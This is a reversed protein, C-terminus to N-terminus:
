EIIHINRDQAQVNISEVAPYNSKYDIVVDYGAPVIQTGDGVKGTADGSANIEVEPNIYLYGGRVVFASGNEVNFTGKNVILSDTNALYAVFALYGATKIHGTFEGGNVIITNNGRGNSGNTMIPGNDVTTYTGGNIEVNGGDLVLIGAEQANINCDNLVLKGSAACVGNSKTTININNLTVTAGKGAVIADQNNATAITGNSLVVEGAPFISTASTLTYGNLDIEVDRLAPTPLSADAMMIMSDGPQLANIAAQTSEYAIGNVYAKPTEIVNIETYQVADKDLNMIMGCRPCKIYRHGLSSAEDQAKDWTVISFCNPCYIKKEVAGNTKIM